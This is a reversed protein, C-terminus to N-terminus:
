LNESVDKAEKRTLLQSLIQRRVIAEQKREHELKQQAECYEIMHEAAKRIEHLVPLLRVEQGSSGLVLQRLDRIVVQAQSIPVPM